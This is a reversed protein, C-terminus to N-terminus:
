GFIRAIHRTKTQQAVLQAVHQRAKIFAFAFDEFHTESQSVTIRAGKFFYAPLKPDGPLSNPLDFGLRQALHAVWRSDPLQVTEEFDLLLHLLAKIKSSSRLSSSGINEM